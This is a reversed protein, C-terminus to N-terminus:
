AEGAYPPHPYTNNIHLGVKHRSGDVFINFFPSNRFSTEQAQGSHISIMGAPVPDCRQQIDM